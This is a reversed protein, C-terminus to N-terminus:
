VRTFLSYVLACSNCRKHIHTYSVYCFDLWDQDGWNQTQDGRKNGTNYLHLRVSVQLVVYESSIKLNFHSEKGLLLRFLSWFNEKTEPNVAVECSKVWGFTSESSQVASSHTSCFFMVHDEIEWFRSINCSSDISSRKEYVWIILLHTVFLTASTTRPCPPGRRFIQVWVFFKHGFM